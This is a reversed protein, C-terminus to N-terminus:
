HPVGISPEDSITTSAADAAARDERKHWAERFTDALFSLAEKGYRALLSQVLPAAYASLVAGAGARPYVARRRRRPRRALWLGALGAAGAAGAALAMTSPKTLRAHFAERARHLGDRTKRKSEALRAEVAGIAALTPARKM